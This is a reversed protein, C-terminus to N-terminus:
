PLGDCPFTRTTKDLTITHRFDGYSVSQYPIIMGNKNDSLDADIM